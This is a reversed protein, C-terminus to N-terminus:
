FILYTCVNAYLIPKTTRSILKSNKVQINSWKSFLLGRSYSNRVERIVKLTIEEYECFLLINKVTSAHLIAKLEEIDGIQYPRVSWGFRDAQDMM